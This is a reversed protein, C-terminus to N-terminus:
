SIVVEQDPFKYPHLLPQHPNWTVISLETMPRVIPENSQKKKAHCKPLSEKWLIKEESTYQGDFRKQCGISIIKNVHQPVWSRANGVVAAYGILNVEEMEQRLEHSSGVQCQCVCMLRCYISPKRGDEPRILLSKTVYAQKIAPCFTRVNKNKNRGYM